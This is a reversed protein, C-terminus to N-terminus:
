DNQFYNGSKSKLYKIVGEALGITEDSLIRPREERQPSDMKQKRLDFDSSCTLALMAYLAQTNAGEPLNDLMCAAGLYNGQSALKSVVTGLDYLTRLKEQKQEEM